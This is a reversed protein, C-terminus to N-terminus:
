LKRAFIAYDLGGFFRDRVAAPLENLEPWSDAAPFRTVVQIGGMGFEELYFALLANPVPRTHTPDLYFHTAFIALCEPNPTEFALLAGRELKGACLEVLQPVRAPPLHEVVQACFIGALSQDPQSALWEFIDSQEAKLSRAQCAAICAPSADVGRAAIGSDRMVELFEGNGCGLDIVERAGQFRTVYFQQGAKVHEPTGRFRGAFAPYDFPVSSQEPAPPPTPALGRQRVTRLEYHITRELELRIREMDSWLQQQIRNASLEVSQTFDRHQSQLLEREHTEAQLALHQANAAVADLRIQTDRVHGEWKAPLPTVLAVSAHLEAFKPETQQRNQELRDGIQSGLSVLSRNLDNVSEMLTEVCTIVSQNFVIQDRVFWNLSRSVTRKTFQILHNAVGARRPNVAGISAAKGQASDRAHVVPMLDALPVSISHGAAASTEPYRSRVRDKIGQVLAQLEELKQDDSAV